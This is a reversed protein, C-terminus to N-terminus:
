LDSFYDELTKVTAEKQRIITGIEDYSLTIEHQGCRFIASNNIIALVNKLAEIDREFMKMKRYIDSANEYTKMNM